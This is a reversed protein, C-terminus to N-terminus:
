YPDGYGIAQYATPIYVNKAWSIQGKGMAKVHGDCFLVSCHAHHRYRPMAGFPWGPQSGAPVDSDYALDAHAEPATGDVVGNLFQAWNWQGVEIFPEGNPKNTAPDVPAVGKEVVQIREAPTDIEALTASPKGFSNCLALNIGYEDVQPTPFSPCDWVGGQGNHVAGSGTTAGNKVYPYVANQWDFFDAAGVPKYQGIPYTEDADQTYQMLALGMQKENSICMTQRAKERAQAFVPFLIAALIAIIAIVVLLEILTFAKIRLSKM